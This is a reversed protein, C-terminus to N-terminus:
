TLLYVKLLQVVRGEQTICISGCGMGVRLADVGADILNKAQAATVVLSLCVCLFSALTPSSSHFALSRGHPCSCAKGNGGVVQLEPYKQKIYNIMNIQYVSNGQSSDQLFIIKLFIFQVIQMQLKLKKKANAVLAWVWWSLWM